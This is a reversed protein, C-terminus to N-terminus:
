YLFIVQFYKFIKKFVNFYYKLVNYIIKVYKKLLNLYKRLGVFFACFDKYKNTKDFKSIEPLEILKRGVRKISVIFVVTSMIILKIIVMRTRIM